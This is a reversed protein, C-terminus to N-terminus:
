EEKENWSSASEKLIKGTMDSLTGDEFKSCPIITINSIMPSYKDNNDLDRLTNMYKMIHIGYGESKNYLKILRNVAIIVIVYKRLKLEHMYKTHQKLEPLIETNTNLEKDHKIIESLSHLHEQTNNLVLNIRQLEKNLVTKHIKLDNIRQTM